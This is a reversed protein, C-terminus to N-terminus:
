ACMGIHYSTVCVCVTRWQLAKNHSTFDAVARGHCHLTVNHSKFDCVTGWQLTCTHHSTVCQGENCRMITVDLTVRRRENIAQQSTFYWAVRWRLTNSRPSFNWAVRWQLTNNHWTFYWVVRSHMCQETMYLIMGLVLRWQKLTM